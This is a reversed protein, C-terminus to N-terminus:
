PACRAAWDLVFEEQEDTEIAGPRVARIDAMAGHADAGQEICLMAAVLGTRGLGGKCHILVRQGGALLAHLEGSLTPWAKLFREDPVDQDPIPLHHWAINREALATPLREVQLETLEHAEVLTLVTSAGWRAIVDCDADLNRAWAGTLGDTQQKGPCFTLGILGGCATDLEAILLPHTLSTRAIPLSYDELDDKPSTVQRHRTPCALALSYARAASTM